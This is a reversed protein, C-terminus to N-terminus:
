LQKTGNCKNCQLHCTNYPFDEPCFEFQGSCECKEKAYYPCDYLRELMRYNFVQTLIKILEKRGENSLM